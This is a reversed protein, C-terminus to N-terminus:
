IDKRHLKVVTEVRDSNDLSILERGEIIPLKFTISKLWQGNEQKEEYIEVKDVLASVLQRKQLILHPSQSCVTTVNM